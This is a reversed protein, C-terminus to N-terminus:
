FLEAFIALILLKSVSVGLNVDFLSKEVHGRLRAFTSKKILSTTQSELAPSFNENKMKGNAQSSPTHPPTAAILFGTNKVGQFHHSM